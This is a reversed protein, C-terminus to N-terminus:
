LLESVLYLTLVIQDMKLLPVFLISDEYRHVNLIFIYYHEIAQDIPGGYELYEDILCLFM